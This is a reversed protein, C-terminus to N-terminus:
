GLLQCHQQGVRVWDHPVTISANFDSLQCTLQRSLGLYTTHPCPAGPFCEEGDSCSM